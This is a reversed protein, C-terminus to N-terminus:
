DEAGWVSECACWLEILEQALEAREAEDMSKGARFREKIGRVSDRLEEPVMDEELFSVETAAMTLREELSGEAILYGQIRGLQEWGKWAWGKINDSM